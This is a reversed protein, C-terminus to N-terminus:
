SNKILQGDSHHWDTSFIKMFRLGMLQQLSSFLHLKKTQPIAILRLSTSPLSSGLKIPFFMCRGYFINLSPWSMLWDPNLRNMYSTNKDQKNHLSHRLPTFIGPDLNIHPPTKTKVEIEFSLPASSHSSMLNLFTWKPLQTRQGKGAPQPPFIDFWFRKILFGFYVKGVDVIFIVAISTTGDPLLLVMSNHSSKSYNPMSRCTLFSQHCTQPHNKQIHKQLILKIVLKSKWLILVNIQPTFLTTNYVVRFSIHNM